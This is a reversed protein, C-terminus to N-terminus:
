RDNEIMWNYGASGGGNLAPSYRGGDPTRPFLGFAGRGIPADPVAYGYMGGHAWSGQALAPSAVSAAILMALGAVKWTEIM